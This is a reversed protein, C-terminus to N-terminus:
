DPCIRIKFEGNISNNTDIRADIRGRVINASISTIEIAGIALIEKTGDDFKCSYLDSALGYTKLQLPLPLFLRVKRLGYGYIDCTDATTISTDTLYLFADNLKPYKKMSGTEFTWPLGAFKGQLDQSKFKHEPIREMPDPDDKKKCFSLVVFAITIIGVFNIKKM